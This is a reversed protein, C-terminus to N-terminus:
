KASTPLPFNGVKQLISYPDCSLIMSDPALAVALELYSAASELRKLQSAARIDMTDDNCNPALIDTVHIACM